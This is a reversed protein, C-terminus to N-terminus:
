SIIYIYIKKKVPSQLLRLTLHPQARKLPCQLKVSPVELYIGKVM